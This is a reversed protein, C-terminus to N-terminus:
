RTYYRLFGALWSTGDWGGALFCFEDTQGTGRHDWTVSASCAALNCVAYPLRMNQELWVNTFPYYAFVRDTVYTDKIL